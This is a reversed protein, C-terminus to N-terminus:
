VCGEDGTSAEGESDDTHVYGDEDDMTTGEQGESGKGEDVHQGNDM